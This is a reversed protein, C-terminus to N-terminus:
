WRATLLEDVIGAIVEIEEVSKNQNGKHEVPVYFLGAGDFATGGSLVQRELGPLSKLRGDYFLESTFATINPHMRRTVDLFLGKGEPMTPHGDLLYTLAAVDSGEPHAGRQPQELQQPDGL